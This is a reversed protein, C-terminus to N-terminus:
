FNRIAPMGCVRSSGQYMITPLETMVFSGDPARRLEAGCGYKEIRVVGGTSRLSFGLAPLTDIQKLDFHRNIYWM